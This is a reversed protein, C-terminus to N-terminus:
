LQTQEDAQPLQQKNVRSQAHASCGHCICREYVTTLTAQTEM